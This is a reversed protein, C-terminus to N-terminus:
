CTDSRDERRYETLSNQRIGGTEPPLQLFYGQDTLSDIVQSTDVAALKRDPSLEITMVHELEGLMDMLASPVRDFEDEKEVYLYTDFKRRGKYIATKM